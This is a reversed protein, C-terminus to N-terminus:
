DQLINKIADIKKNLQDIIQSESKQLKNGARDDIKKKARIANISLVPDKEVMEDLKKNPPVFPLCYSNDIRFNGLVPGKYQLISDVVKCCNMVHDSTFTRLGYAQSIKNFEPTYKYNSGM